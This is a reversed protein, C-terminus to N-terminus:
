LRESLGGSSCRLSSNRPCRHGVARATSSASALLSAHPSYSCGSRIPLKCPHSAVRAFAVTLSRPCRRSRVFGFPEVLQCQSMSGLSTLRRDSLAM